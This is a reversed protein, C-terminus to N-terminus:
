LANGSLLFAGALRGYNMSRSAIAPSMKKYNKEGFRRIARPYISHAAHTPMGFVATFSFWLETSQWCWIQNERFGPGM